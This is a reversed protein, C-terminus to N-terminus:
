NIKNKELKLKFFFFMGIDNYPRKCIYSHGKMSAACDEHDWFFYDATCNEDPREYCPFKKKMIICTPRLGTTPPLNNYDKWGPWWNSFKFMAKSSDEWIWFTKSMMTFGVGATMVSEVKPYDNILWESLFNNENQSTIDVLRSNREVCYSM